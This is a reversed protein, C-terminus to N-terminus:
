MRKYHISLRRQLEAESKESALHVKNSSGKGWNGEKLIWMIKIKSAQYKEWNLLGDFEANAGFEELFPMGFFIEEHM